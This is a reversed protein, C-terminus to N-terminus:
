RGIWTRLAEDEAYDRDATRGLWDWYNMPSDGGGRKVEVNDATFREGKRVPRVAVLGRRAIPLNKWEAETPCKLADGLAAEVQRVSRVLGALEDPELSARHDPGPLNRDLTFHKEIVRAGRAAAAVAVAIGPTHDSLGVPLGFAAALTDMARLNVQDFPAPYETTCHLLTVRERLALRGAPSAFAARFAEQGPLAGATAYGFALVGLADEVEALGSMGTSLIVPLGTQAAALLLPGNTLDGSGIKLTPVGLEGALFVLSERDFPTSLFVIGLERCRDRLGLHAAADLELAKLMEMQSAADGTNAVQYEAKPVARTVLAQARFTQFKVADAGAAAAVEVLELARALSGNHNVGAEAIVLTHAAAM